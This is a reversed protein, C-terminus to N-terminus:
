NINELILTEKYFENCDYHVFGLLPLLGAPAQEAARNYWREAEAQNEAVGVGTHYLRGLQCQAPAYGQLASARLWRVAEIPNAPVGFNGALILGARSQAHANGQEAARLYWQLGIPINQAAGYRDITLLDGLNSQAEPSGQQASKEYWDVAQRVDESLGIGNIYYDGLNLQARPDGNDAARRFWQSASLYSQTIGDGQSYMLGVKYQADINNKNAAKLYLPFAQEAQRPRFTGDLLSDALLVQADTFEQSSAQQLYHKATSLRATSLEGSDLINKATKFQGIPSGSDAASKYWFAAQLQTPDSLEGSEYQEALSIMAQTNGAEADVQLKALESSRKRESILECSSLVPLLILTTILALRATPVAM